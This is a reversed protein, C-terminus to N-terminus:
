AAMPFRNSVRLSLCPITGALRGPSKTGYLCRAVSHRDRKFAHPAIRSSGVTRNREIGQGHSHRSAFSDTFANSRGCSNSKAAGKLTRELENAPEFEPEQSSLM